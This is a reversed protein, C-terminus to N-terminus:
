YVKVFEWGIAVGRIYQKRFEVEYFRKYFAIADDSQLLSTEIEFRHKISVPVRIVDHDFESTYPLMERAVEIIQATTM